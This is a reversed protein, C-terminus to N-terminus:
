KLIGEHGRLRVHGSARVRVPAHQERVLGHSLTAHKCVDSDLGAVVVVVVVLGCPNEGHELELKNFFVIVLRSMM